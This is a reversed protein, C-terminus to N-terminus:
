PELPFFRVITIRRVCGASSNISKPRKFPTSRGFVLRVRCPKILFAWIKIWNMDKTLSENAEGNGVSNSFAGGRARLSDRNRANGKM